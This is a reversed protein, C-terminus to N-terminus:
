TWLTEYQNGTSPRTSSSASSPPIRDWSKEKRLSLMKNPDVRYLRVVEEFVENISHSNKYNVEMYKAANIEAALLEGTGTKINSKDEPNRLDTKTGVLIVPVDPRTFTLEEHWQATVNDFSARDIVSFIM